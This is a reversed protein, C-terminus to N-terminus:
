KNIEELQVDAVGGGPCLFQDINFIFTFNSDEILFAHTGFNLSITESIFPFSIYEPNSTAVVFLTEWHFLTDEGCTIAKKKQM